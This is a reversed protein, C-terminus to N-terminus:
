PVTVAQSFIDQDNATRGNPETGTCLAPPVGPLGTGPCLFLDPSRTDMWLPHAVNGIVSLGTYDGFFTSNGQTDPFQTPSPMSASTVRVTNFERVGDDSGSLSFDMNGNFEDQGYQRDYYSVALKGSGTISAWQWWQDTREQGPTQNVVPLKRPDTTTGTFTAGSDTSVSVLIKNNCAGPTKVGAYLPTLSSTLGAPVCGNAENSDQNIYSAFTVYVKSPNLPSVVGSPYNAARFVSNMSKGKEPVCSVGADQGGQFAACDPLDNYNGVLVPHSFTVGGDTSKSLLIQFHNDNPGSESNNFNDYAVYLAGDPGVFPNSFMNIDCSNKPDGPVVSPCLPSTSSVLARKSFTQGYDDSFSEFIRASGDALDENYTVYIRDRFPSAANDDITMYPKDEFPFFTTNFSEVVPRGPFNWSAGFNGTSRYVYIASSFDPNNTVGPGRQFVLCAYYANGRTDWALSPDGAAQWYQRAVGGFNAGRTFGTPIESETWSQGGNKSFDAVCNSDGRVYDNSTAVINNPNLPDQAIATENNAQGRGQLDSDTLNLCNQNVKINGGRNQPCGDDSTPFYNRPRSATNPSAQQDLESSVIGSLFRKQLKTLQAYGASKAKVTGAGTGAHLYLATGFLLITLASVSILIRLMRMQM